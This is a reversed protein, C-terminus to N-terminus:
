MQSRISTRCGGFTTQWHAVNAAPILFGFLAFVVMPHGLEIGISFALIALLMTGTNMERM